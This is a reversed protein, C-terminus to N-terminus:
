RIESEGATAATTLVEGLWLQLFAEDAAQIQLVTRLEDLVGGYDDGHRANGWTAM